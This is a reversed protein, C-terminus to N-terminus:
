IPCAYKVHTVSPCVSSKRVQRVLVASQMACRPSLMYNLYFLLRVSELQFRRYKLDTFSCSTTSNRTYINWTFQVFLCVINAFTHKETHQESLSIEVWGMEQALTM